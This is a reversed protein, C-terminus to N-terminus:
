AAKGPCHRTCHAHYRLLTISFGRDPYIARAGVIICPLRRVNALADRMAPSFAEDQTIDLIVPKSMVIGRALARLIERMTSKSTVTILEPIRDDTIRALTELRHERAHQACGTYTHYPVHM